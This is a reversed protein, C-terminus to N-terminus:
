TKKKKIPMAPSVESSIGVLAAIDHRRKAARGAVLDQTFLFVALDLDYREGPAESDQLITKRAASPLSWGCSRGRMDRDRAAGSPSQRM